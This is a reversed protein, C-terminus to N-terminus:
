SFDDFPEIEGHYFPITWDQDDWGNRWRNQQDFLTDPKNGNELILESLTPLPAVTSYREWTPFGDEDCDFEGLRALNWTSQWTDDYDEVELFPDTPLLGRMKEIIEEPDRLYGPHFNCRISSTKGTIVDAIAQPFRRYERRMEFRYDNDKYEDDPVLGRRIAESRARSWQLGRSVAGDFVQASLQPVPDGDLILTFSDKPLDLHEVVWRAIPPTVDHESLKARGAVAEGLNHVWTVDPEHNGYGQFINRWLNARRTVHLEPNERMFPLLGLGHCEAFPVSPRDEELLVQRMYTRAGPVSGLFRICAAAASFRYNYGTDRPPKFDRYLHQWRSAIDEDDGPIFWPEHCMALVKNARSLWKQDLTAPSSTDIISQLASTIFHRYVSHAEGYENADNYRVIDWPLAVTHWRLEHHEDTPIDNFTEILHSLQPFESTMRELAQPSIRGRAQALLEAETSYMNKMLTFLANARYKTRASCVTYFRVINHKLALGKMEAAVQQCCSQLAMLNPKCIPGGAKLRNTAPNYVYGHELTVYERYIIDRIERPVRLFAPESSM